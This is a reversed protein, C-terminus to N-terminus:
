KYQSESVFEVRKNTLRLWSNLSTIVISDTSEALVFVCDIFQEASAALASM